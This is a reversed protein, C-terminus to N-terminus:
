AAERRSLSQFLAESLEIELAEHDSTLDIASPSAVIRLL